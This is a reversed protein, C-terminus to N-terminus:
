EPELDVWRVLEALPGRGDHHGDAPPWPLQEFNTIRTAGARAFRQALAAIRAADAAIAVSQLFAGGAPIRVPVDELRGIPYVRLTRSLPSPEFEGTGDWVVTWGTGPGTWLAVDQGGIARFEAQTRAAHVRVAEGAARTGPPLETAIRDLAAAIMQAMNRPSVGGDEEIWVAHPSVCGQQDFLAVARAIDSAIRDAAAADHLAERGVVGISFRPGHEIIRAAAPARARVSMAAAAGGYVVIADAERMAADNAREDDGPWYTVAVCQGLSADEAALARGFAAALFPEGSATKGLVASKVLLSRILATVAVGPVNGAFIHLTLDPGFARSRLQRGPQGGFDELARGGDLEAALLRELVPLRWDLEMRDLVHRVMEPAYGSTAAIVGDLADRM